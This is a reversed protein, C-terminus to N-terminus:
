AARPYASMSPRPAQPPYVHWSGTDHQFFVIARSDNPQVSEVIVCRVRGCNSSGIRTIRVAKGAAFGFWKEIQMRLSTRTANM